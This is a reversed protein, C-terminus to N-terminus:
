GTSIRGLKTSPPRAMSITSPGLLQLIIDLRRHLHRAVRRHQDVLIQAVRDLHVHVRDAVAVLDDHRAHELMDLFRADM